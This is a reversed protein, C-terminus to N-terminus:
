AQASCKESREVPYAQYEMRDSDEDSETDYYSDRQAYTPYAGALAVTQGFRYYPGDDHDDTDSWYVDTPPDNRYIKGPQDNSRTIFNVNNSNDENIMRNICEVFSEGNLRFLRWGDCFMYKKSGDIYANGNKVMEALDPCDGMLHGWGNCGFCHISQFPARPPPANNPRVNRLPVSNPYTTPPPRRTSQNSFTPPRTTSPYQRSPPPVTTTTFASPSPSSNEQLPKRSICQAVLGSPDSKIAKYYLQGYTPDQISMANLKSIIGEIEEQPAVITRSRNEEIQQTEIQKKSKNGSKRSRHKRRRSAKARRRRDYDVDSDSDYQDSESESDSDYDSDDVPTFRTPFQLLRDSYKGRKFHSEAVSCIQEIEWPNSTDHTPYRAILRDEFIERQSESIGLWFYGHLQQQDIYQNANLHGAFSMYDRYYQKWSELNSIYNKSQTSLFKLFKGLNYKMEEKEADYYKLIHAELKDWDGSTYHPSTEIFERVSKSCYELVGECRDADSTVQYQDLLRKYKSIFQAVEDYKGTFKKPARRDGRPPMDLLPNHTNYSMNTVPNPNLFSPFQYYSSIIHDPLTIPVNRPFETDSIISPTSPPSSINSLHSIPSIPRSELHIFEDSHHSHHTDSHAYISQSTIDM